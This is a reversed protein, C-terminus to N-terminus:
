PFYRELLTKAQKGYPGQPDLKATTQFEEKAQAEFQNQLYLLGLHFHYIFPSGQADAALAQNFMSEAAQTQGTGMQARGLMDMYAPNKPDLAYARLAASLGYEELYASNEVCFAALAYWSAADQPALNTAQVYAKLATALDTQSTVNALAQWWVPNSPELQTALDFEAQAKRVDGAKSWYTGLMAHIPASKQDLKVAYELAELAGTAKNQQRVIGLWAWAAAYKPNADIAKSFAQQALRWENIRALAQGCLALRYAPDNAPTKLASILGNLRPAAEPSATSARNLMPLAEPAASATLLIGMRENADANRPDIDLWQHLVRAEAEYQGRAHYERALRPGISGTEQKRNLLSEWEGIAKDTEGSALYADGLAVQGASTLAGKQRSLDLMEIARQPDASLSTLGAKEYLDARWFLLNAANEYFHSAELQDSTGQARTLNIYGM